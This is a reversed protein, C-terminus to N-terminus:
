LCYLLLPTGYSPYFTGPYVIPLIFAYWLVFLLYVTSPDKGRASPTGENQKRLRNGVYPVELLQDGDLVMELSYCYTYGYPM